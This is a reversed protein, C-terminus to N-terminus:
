AGNENEDRRRRLMRTAFEDYAMEDFAYAVMAREMKRLPDAGPSLMGRPLGSSREMGGGGSTGPYARDIAREAFRFSKKCDELHLTM